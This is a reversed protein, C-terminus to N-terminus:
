GERRRRGPIGPVVRRGLMASIQEQFRRSGLAYSGATARRIDAVLDDPIAEAVLARYAAARDPAAPALAQFVPHPTVFSSPM